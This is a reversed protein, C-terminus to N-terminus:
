LYACWARESCSFPQNVRSFLCVSATIRSGTSNESCTGKLMEALAEGQLASLALTLMQIQSWPFSVGARKQPGREKAGRVRRLMYIESM